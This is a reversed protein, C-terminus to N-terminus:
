VEAINIRETPNMIYTLMTGNKYLEVIRYGRYATGWNGGVHSDFI